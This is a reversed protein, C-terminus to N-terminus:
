NNLGGSYINQANFDSKDRKMQYLNSPPQFYAQSGDRMFEGQLFTSDEIQHM